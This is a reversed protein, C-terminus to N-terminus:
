MLDNLSFTVFDERTSYTVRYITFLLIFNTATTSPSGFAEMEIAVFVSTNHFGGRRKSSQEVKGKIKLNFKKFMTIKKIM